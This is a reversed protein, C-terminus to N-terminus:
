VPEKQLPRFLNRLQRSRRAGVGAKAKRGSTTKQRQCQRADVKVAFCTQLASRHDHQQILRTSPDTWLKSQHRTKLQARRESQQNENDQPRACRLYLLGM